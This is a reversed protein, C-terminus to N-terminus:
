GVFPAVALPGLKLEQLDDAGLTCSIFGIIGYILTLVDLSLMADLQIAVNDVDSATCHFFVKRDQTRINERERFLGPDDIRERLLLEALIEASGKVEV